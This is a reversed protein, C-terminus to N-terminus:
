PAPHAPPRVSFMLGEMPFPPTQDATPNEQKIRLIEKLEAVSKEKEGMAKYVGALTQHAEAMEPWLRLAANLHALASPYDKRLYDITGALSQVYVDDPTLRLAQSIASQAEEVNERSGNVIALALYYYSIGNDAGLAIANELVPKAEESRLRIALTIGQVLYPLSWEPWRSQIQALIRLTDDHQRIMEYAMAHILQLEPSDPIAQNAQKLFRLAQQYQKHKILFIAGQFYLDARTPAAAFGRNLARAAEEPQNLADLIQARLLFYDGKQQALPTEDLVQLGAEPGAAHFSATALDLRVDAAAPNAASAPELFERAAAYLEYDLLTKGCSALLTADSTLKRAARFSELAEDTKGERLLANGLRVRLGPDEPRTTITRRLNTMYQAYQEEPPLKLFQFLGGYPRRRAEEPGLSRFAALVKEAEEKRNLRLLIRSYHTLVKADKPALEMARELVKAAEEFRELRTYDVGLADLARYDDPEKAVVIKLDEVSEATKGLQYALVARAYRAANFKPDVALARNLHELAKDPERVTEAIALEYLGRADKPYKQVYWRLDVLAEELKATRALCFGRERRAVDEHPKLKLYEDIASAADAYFGIDESAMALAYLIDTREPAANHAQLLPIIADDAHGKATYLNALNYLCDADNPQHKLAIAYVEQARDLHGARQAALGLNYLIDFNTPAMELARAFSKEAADFLKWDAYIMGVSFPLRSDEGGKREVGELLEQAAQAQGTLHLAQAHLMAVAPTAQDQPPLRQLYKTAEAGQKAEISLRALQLNANAHSPEAAVVKLFTTRAPATKGQALYHNGLNNLVAPSGPALALAQQYAKEAEAYRKQADLVIGLLSLAAPDRPAQQLAARLTREAQFVNGQQFDAAAQHLVNDPVENRANQALLLSFSFLLELLIANILTRYSM